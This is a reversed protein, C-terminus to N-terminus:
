IILSSGNMEQPKSIGLLKLITPAIDRLSGSEALKYDDLGLVIFPVDEITHATVPQGKENLMREVNGHDATILLIGGSASIASAVRGICADVKEVAKRAASMIGTHGVMDPNAYNLIILDYIDAQIKDIVTATVEEASMEPQLDYTAVKPSPILIRDEMPNPVEVGGNFFFTVHAYKETEAIRLQHLHNRAVVEGLTNVLNEQPFAIPVPIKADYQTMACFYVKPFVPREFFEFKQEVFARTIERARDPRFNFFIMSDGDEVKGEYLAGAELHVIPEVFEDTTGMNYSNEMANIVDYSSNGEGLVMARWAKEVRQWRSDRDMAYFRGMVTAIKGIGLKDCFSQLDKLYGFASTPCVDRGDLFCHVYVDKLGKQHAMELLAYLHKIHSHVGGDSLLGMLHLKGHNKKAADIAKLLETNKFFSGKQVANSIRSLDQYVIRGAGINLHGVESNGMQGKPLGVYEGSAKLVTCNKKDEWLKNFVPLQAESIVNGYPNDSIGWGDLIMLMVPKKVTM